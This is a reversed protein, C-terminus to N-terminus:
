QEIPSWRHVLSRSGRHSRVETSGPRVQLPNEAEGASLSKRSHSHAGVQVTSSEPVSVRLTPSVGGVRPARPGEHLARPRCTELPGRVPSPDKWRPVGNETGGSPGGGRPARVRGVPQPGWRRVCKRHGRGREPRTSAWSTDQDPGAGVVPSRIEWRKGRVSTPCM